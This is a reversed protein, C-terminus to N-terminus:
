IFTVCTWSVPHPGDAPHNRPPTFRYVATPAQPQDNKTKGIRRSAHLIIRRTNMSLTGHVGNLEQRATDTHAPLQNAISSYSHM